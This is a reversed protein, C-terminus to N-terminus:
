IFLKVAAILLLVILICETIGINIQGNEDEFAEQFIWLEWRFWEWGTPGPRHHTKVGRAERKRAINCERKIQEMEREKSGLDDKALMFVLIVLPIFILLIAPNM